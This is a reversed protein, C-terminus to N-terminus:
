CWSIGRPDMRYIKKKNKDQGRQCPESSPAIDPPIVDEMALGVSGGDIQSNGGVEIMAAGAGGEDIRADIVVRIGGAGPYRVSSGPKAAGRCNADAGHRSVVLPM